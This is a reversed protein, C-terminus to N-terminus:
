RTPSEHVDYRLLLSLGIGSVSRIDTLVVFMLCPFRIAWFALLESAVILVLAHSTHAHYPPVVRIPILHAPQSWEPQSM